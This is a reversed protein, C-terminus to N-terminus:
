KQSLEKRRLARLAIKREAGVRFSECAKRIARNHTAPDLVGSLLLAEGEAPFRVIAEAALWAAAMSVYYADARVSALCGLVFPLWAEDMYFHLLTTLAFRRVFVRGDALYRAIYPAFAERNRAICAPAFGDCTAWNDLLGVIGDIEEALAGFPLQAAVACKLFTVEYFEDPFSRVSAWEDKWRKALSRLVPMRVGIVALAEDKLLKKHFARYEADQAATLAARVEEYTIM